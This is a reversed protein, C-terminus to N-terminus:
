YRPTIIFALTVLIRSQLVSQRLLHPVGNLLSHEAEQPHPSVSSDSYSAVDPVPSTISHHNSLISLRQKLISAHVYSAENIFVRVENDLTEHLLFLTFDIRHRHAPTIPVYGRQPLRSRLKFIVKPM